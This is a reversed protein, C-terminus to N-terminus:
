RELTIEGGCPVDITRRYGSSGVKVSHVGCKVTIPTPTEGVVRDDVFIRHGPPATESRLLGM